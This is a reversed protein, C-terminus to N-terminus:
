LYLREELKDKYEDVITDMAAKMAALEDRDKPEVKLFKRLPNKELSVVRDKLEFEEAPLHEIGLYDGECLVVARHIINELERINGPFSYRELLLYVEPEIKIKKHYQESFKRIFHNALLLIDEKRERLPPVKITIVNLRYYLADLF